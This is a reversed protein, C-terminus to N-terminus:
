RQRRRLFPNEDKEPTVAATASEEEDPSVRRQEQIWDRIAQWEAENAAIDSVGVLESLRLRDFLVDARERLDEALTSGPEVAYPTALALRPVSTFGFVERWREPDLDGPPSRLSDDVTVQVLLRDVLDGGDAFPRWAYVDFGPDSEDGGLGSTDGMESGTLEGLWRIADVLSEPRGDIGPRRFRVAEGQLYLAKAAERALLAFAAAVGPPLDGTSITPSSLLQLFEYVRRDVGSNLTIVGEATVRFPYTRPAASARRRIEGLLEDLESADPENGSSFEALLSTRSVDNEPDLMMSREVWEALTWADFAAPLDLGQLAM